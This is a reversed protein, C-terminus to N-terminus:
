SDEEIEFGEEELINIAGDVAINIAGQYDGEELAEVVAEVESGTVETDPMEELKMPLHKCLESNILWNAIEYKDRGSDVYEKVKSITIM